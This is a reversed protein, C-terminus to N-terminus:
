LPEAAAGDELRYARAANDHFLAAKEAASCGAAIRKFVNWLTAYAASPQDAPYNSEFMCRGAGFLGIAELYYHRTAEAIHRSDPLQQQKHFGWGNLPMQIGGLKVMVNGCGALERMGARWAQFVEDRRGAYPGIGLPGGLHDLVILTEPFARALAAVELIQPHFVWADFSLGRRALEAFGQQFRPDALMQPFPHTHANRIQESGDWAACHRIGRFRPSLALHADLVAAIGSGLNLDAYGVIGACVRPGPQRALGLQAASEAFETEGLPRLAEPGGRRYMAECEVFVSSVVCHGSGLDGAFEEYLYRSSPRQWLHHHADCIRLEPELIQEPAHDTTTPM